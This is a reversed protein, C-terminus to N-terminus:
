NASRRRRQSTGARSSAGGDGGDGCVSAIAALEPRKGPADAGISVGGVGDM